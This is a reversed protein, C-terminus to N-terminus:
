KNLSFLVDLTTEVEVPEGGVLTPKYRWQRSANLAAQVLLPHGSVVSLQQVTGDTGIIVGLRVIGSVGTQRALPPYTPDVHYVLLSQQVAASRKIRTVVPKPPEVVPSPPSAPASTSNSAAQAEENNPGVWLPKVFDEGPPAFAYNIISLKGDMWGGGQYKNFSFMAGEDMIRWRMVQESFSGSQAPIDETQYTRPKGFHASMQLTVSNCGEASDMCYWTISYVRGHYLGIEMLISTGTYDRRVVDCETLLFGKVVSSTCDLDPIIAKAQAATMGTRIGKVRVGLYPTVATPAVRAAQTAAQVANQKYGVLLCSIVLLCFAATKKM